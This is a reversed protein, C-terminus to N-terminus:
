YPRRRPTTAPSLTLPVAAKAAINSRSPHSALEHPRSEGLNCCGADVISRTLEIDVYKTVAVLQIQDATRGSRNAADGIRQNVSALNDKIRPQGPFEDFSRPRLKNELVRDENQPTLPAASM